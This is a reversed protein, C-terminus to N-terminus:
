RKDRSAIVLEPVGTWREYCEAGRYRHLMSITITQQHEKNEGFLDVNVIVTLTSGDEGRLDFLGIAGELDAIRDAGSSIPKGDSGPVTVTMQGHGITYRPANAVFSRLHEAVEPMACRNRHDFDIGGKGPRYTEAGAPVAAIVLMAIALIRTM